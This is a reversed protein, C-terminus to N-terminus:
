ESPQRTGGRRRKVAPVLEPPEEAGEASETTYPQGEASTGPDGNDQVGQVPESKTVAKIVPVQQLENISRILLDRRDRLEIYNTYATYLRELNENLDRIEINLTETIVKKSGETIENKVIAVVASNVAASKPKKSM